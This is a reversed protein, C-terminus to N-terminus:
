LFIFFSFFIIVSMSSLSSKSSIKYFSFFHLQRMLLNLNNQVILHILTSEILLKSFLLSIAIQIKSAPNVLSCFIINDLFTSSILDASHSM